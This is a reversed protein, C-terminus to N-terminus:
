KVVPPTAPKEAPATAPAPTPPCPATSVAKQRAGKTGRAERTALSKDAAEAKEATTTTKRQNPSTFGLKEYEPSDNGFAVVAAAKVVQRMAQQRTRVAKIAGQAKKLQAKLDLIQEEANIHQETQAVVQASNM